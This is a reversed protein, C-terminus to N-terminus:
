KLVEVMENFVAALQRIDDLTYTGHDLGLVIGASTPEIHLSGQGITLTQEDITTVTKTKLSTTVSIASTTIAPNPYFLECIDESWFCNDIWKKSGDWMVKIEENLVQMVIGTDNPSNIDRVRDGVKFKGM